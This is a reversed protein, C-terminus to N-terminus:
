ASAPPKAKFQPLLHAFLGSHETSTTSAMVITQASAVPFAITLIAALATQLLALPWFNRFKQM